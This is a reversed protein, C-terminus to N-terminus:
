GWQDAMANAIGAFTKSRLKSREAAPLRLTNFHWASDTRGSAHYIIQPQVLTQREFLTDQRVYHLRPLGKLWLCTSKREPDGFYYPHIIQDPKRWESSMIGIPNEIAIRPMNAEALRMFFSIADKRDQQRTPFRTAFEPLFWKNGTLTLYTCPPFAIMGDWGANIVDFIDGQYHPGPSETPLLDCSMAYHGKATFADRVVGSYECAILWRGM